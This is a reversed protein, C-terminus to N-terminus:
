ERWVVKGHVHMPHSPPSHKRVACDIAMLSASVEQLASCHELDLDTADLNALAGSVPNAPGAAAM